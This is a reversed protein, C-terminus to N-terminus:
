EQFEKLKNRFKKIIDSPNEQKFIASGAVIVETGATIVKKINDLKIGGDVAIEVNYNNESIIHSLKQIKKYIVPIFEQGGYGPNVSMILVLDLEPLLYEIEQLSTAPNLAIGAKCSCSKIKEIIRHSHPSAEVHFTIIDSGAEAFENIYKGPNSIMLHTDFILDSFPRIAKIIGPGFTINPVFSGDMVDLHLYDANKVKNVEKKLNSYDSALISPSIKIM